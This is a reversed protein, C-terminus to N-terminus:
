HLTEKNFMFKLTPNVVLREKMWVGKNVRVKESELKESISKTKDNETRETKGKM